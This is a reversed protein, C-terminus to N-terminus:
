RHGFKQKVKKIEKNVLDWIYDAEQTKLSVLMLAVPTTVGCIIAHVIVSVWGYDIFLRCCINYDLLGVAVTTLTYKVFKLYYRSVPYAGEFGIRHLILPDYWAFTAWDSVITGILVGSIGLPKVLVISVCLNIFMGALPRAWGQRFLGYSTRYKALAQKYSVTYIELGLFFSFPQVLLWDNGIWRHVFEDAVVFVGVFATGGLIAAVLMTTEFVKYERKVDHTTHLNGISHGVSNFVKTFLTRVTTYFIAYNSYLAVSDLGLFASLVINDTSKVVVNNMKYLFLAGCDKFVGKAEEKPMRETTKQKLYPYKKEAFIAVALNQGITKIVTIIVYLEFSKFLLMCVIQLLGSGITFVYSIINIFYEHQDAKIIASKYAFFLYSAVSDFLYLLFIFPANINLASLKDYDNVLKPLFPILSIGIVAVAIGIYRYVVKYFRMLMNIRNENKHALPEYLKFIIASGVGMEALSLMSLINTFLGNIGLYSKGLTQIFVTRVVFQMLITILQGGISSIFNYISNKTRSNNAM